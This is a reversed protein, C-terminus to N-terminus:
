RGRRQYMRIMSDIWEIRVSRIFKDDVHGVTRLVWRELSHVRVDGWEPGWGTNLEAQIRAKVQFVTLSCVRSGEYLDLVNCIWTPSWNAVVQVRVLELAESPKTILPM